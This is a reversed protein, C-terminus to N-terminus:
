WSGKDEGGLLKFSKSIGESSVYSEKNVTERNHDHLKCTRKSIETKRKNQAGKTKM